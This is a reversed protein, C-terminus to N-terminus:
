IGRFSISAQEGDAGVYEEVQRMYRDLKRLIYDAAVNPQSRKTHYLEICIIKEYPTEILVDSTINPIWPHEEEYAVSFDSTLSRELAQSIANNLHRDLGSGSAWETIEKFAPKAAERARAAPGSKRKGSPSPSQNLQRYVPTTSIYESAASPKLWRSQSIKDKLDIVSDDTFAAISSVYSNTTLYMIRTTLTGGIALQLRKPTWDASRQSDPIYEWLKDHFAKWASEVNDGRRAFRSVVDEAEPYSLVFWVETPKPIRKHIKELRNNRKQWKRKVAELYGRINDMYMVEKRFNKKVENLDANTLNFDEITLGNNLVSITNKAIEEYRDQEPGKFEVIEKGKHFMTNSVRKAHEIMKKADGIKTVPWVILISKNRLIGNLSRFFSKIDGDNQGELHELYNVVLVTYKGEEKSSDSVHSIRKLLYDLTKGTVSGCDIEELETFPLHRRWALSEIFTSKGSGPEGLLFVVRGSGQGMQTAIEALDAEASEVPQVFQMLKAVYSEGSAELESRIDEYMTPLTLDREM